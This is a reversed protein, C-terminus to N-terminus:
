WMRYRNYFTFTSRPWQFNVSQQVKLCHPNTSLAPFQHCCGGEESKDCSAVLSGVLNAWLPLSPFSQSLVTHHFRYTKFSNSVQTTWIIKKGEILSSCFMWTRSFYLPQTSDQTKRNGLKLHHYYLPCYRNAFCRKHHKSVSLNGLTWHVRVM